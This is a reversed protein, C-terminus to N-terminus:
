YRYILYSFYNNLYKGFADDPKPSKMLIKGGKLQITSRLNDIAFRKVGNAYKIIKLKGKTTFIVNM